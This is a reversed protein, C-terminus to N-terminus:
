QIVEEILKGDVIRWIRNAVQYALEEHHEVMVLASKKEKITAKVTRMVIEVNDDDLEGLFEDALVLKPQQAVTRATAVRRQQGGSLTRVPQNSFDTLGFNRLAKDVIPRLKKPLPFIPPLWKSAHMRVGMEINSRVSMNSILGLRQPIYGLGGRRKVKLEVSGTIPRVLGALTRLLTTKGIGSPGLVAIVDGSYIELNIEDILTTEYGVSVDVLKALLKAM